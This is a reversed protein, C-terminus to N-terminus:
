DNEDDTNANDTDIQQFNTNTGLVSGLVAAVGVVTVGAIMAMKTLWKKNESDKKDVANAIDKMQEIIYKREDFSLTDKDLETQLAMIISNYTEYTSRLSENDSDIARNLLEKYDLLITKVTGSFEPFQEM